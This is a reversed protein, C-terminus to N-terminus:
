GEYDPVELAFYKLTNFDINLYSSTTNLNTHGLVDKIVHMPTNNTLLSSALSHRLAHPGHKRQTIDIQAKKFYSSVTAHIQSASLMGYNNKIGIFLLDSDCSPRSSRLYDILAYKINELLPLQNFVGTKFQTFEITNREWHIDTLKLRCIDGSRIGLEAALLVIALDKKGKVTSNDICSVITKVEEDSYFSLIRDRKNTVIVPFLEQGSYSCLKQAYLYNFFHRLIFTKGSITSTALASISCLFGSVHKQQCDHFSHIGNDGLYNCLEMITLRKANMTDAAKDKFEALLLYQQIINQYSDYRLIIKSNKSM